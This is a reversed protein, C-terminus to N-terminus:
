YSFCKMCFYGDKNMSYGDKSLNIVKRCKICLTPKYTPPNELKEFNYENTGFYVYMELETDGKCKKCTKWDGSHEETHHHGCLTYQRHNRKCSNHAYSFLVYKNEDDCIWQNCCETKTLKTKKGCIFCKKIADTKDKVIKSM